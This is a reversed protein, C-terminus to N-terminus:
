RPRDLNNLGEYVTDSQQSTVVAQTYTALAQEARPSVYGDKYGLQEMLLKRIQVVKEVHRNVHM